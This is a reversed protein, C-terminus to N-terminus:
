RIKRVIGPFSSHDSGQGKNNDVTVGHDPQSVQEEGAPLESPRKVHFEGLEEHNESHLHIHHPAGVSGGGVKGKEELNADFPQQSLNEM